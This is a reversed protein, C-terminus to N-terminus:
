VKMQLLPQLKPPRLLLGDPAAPTHDERSPSVPCATGVGGWRWHGAGTGVVYDTFAPADTQRSLLLYVSTQQSCRLDRSVGLGADAWCSM